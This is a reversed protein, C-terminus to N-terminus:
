NQSYNTLDYERFPPIDWIDPESDRSSVVRCWRRYLFWVHEVDYNVSFMMDAVSYRAPPNRGNNTGLSQKRLAYGNVITTLVAGALAREQTGPWPHKKM